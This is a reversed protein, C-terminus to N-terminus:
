GEGEATPSPAAFCRALRTWEVRNLTEPRRSGEIGAAELRRALAPRDGIGAWGLLSTGLQKRRHSFALKTLGRFAALAEPPLEGEGHAKLIVVASTVEPVPWFCRPHLSRLLRVDYVRQAWVSILGYDETSPTAALRDAVERQVTTVLIAPRVVADFIDMLIRSGVSYPLNSILRTVPGWSPMGAVDDLGALLRPLDLDLADAAVIRLRPNDGHREALFTALRADKEVAIVRVGQGLIAETLVGLGPGIELVVDEPSLGADAVIIDRINADVLFNQGLKKDPRVDLTELLARVETAKAVAITM